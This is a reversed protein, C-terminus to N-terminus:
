CEHGCVALTHAGLPIEQMSSAERAILNAAVEARSHVHAEGGQAHVHATM